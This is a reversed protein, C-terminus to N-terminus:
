SAVVPAVVPAVDKVAMLDLFQDRTMGRKMGFLKLVDLASRQGQLIRLLAM